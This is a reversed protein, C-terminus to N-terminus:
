STPIKFLNQSWSSLRAKKSKEDVELFYKKLFDLVERAEKEDLRLSKAMRELQDLSTWGEGMERSLLHEWIEDLM